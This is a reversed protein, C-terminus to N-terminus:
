EVGWDFTIDQFYPGGSINITFTSSTKDTIWWRKGGNDSTFSPIVINPTGGFSHNVVKSTNGATITDSGDDGFAGAPPPPPPPQTSITYLVWASGNWRYYVGM